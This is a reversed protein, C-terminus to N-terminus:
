SCSFFWFVFWRVSSNAVNFKVTSLRRVSWSGGSCDLWLLTCFLKKISLSLKELLSSYFNGPRHNKWSNLSAQPLIPVQEIFLGMWHTAITLPLLLPPKKRKEKQCCVHSSWPPGTMQKDRPLATQSPRQQEEEESVNGHFHEVIRWSKVRGPNM